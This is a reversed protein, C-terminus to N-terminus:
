TRGARMARARRAGAVGLKASTYIRGRRLAGNTHVGRQFLASSVPAAAFRMSHRGSRFARGAARGAQVPGTWRELLPAQSLMSKLSESTTARTSPRDFARPQEPKSSSTRSTARVKQSGNAVNSVLESRQPKMTGLFKLPVLGTTISSAWPSSTPRITFDIRSLPQRVKMWSPRKVLPVSPPSCTSTRVTSPPQTRPTTPM